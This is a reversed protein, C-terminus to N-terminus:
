VKCNYILSYKGILLFSLSFNINKLVSPKFIFTAIPKLVLFPGQPPPFLNTKDKDILVYSFDFLYEAYAYNIFQNNPSIALAKEFDIKSEPM